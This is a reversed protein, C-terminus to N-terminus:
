GGSGTTAPAPSVGGAPEAGQAAVKKRDFVQDCDMRAKTLDRSHMEAHKSERKSTDSTFRDTIIKVINMIFLCVLNYLLIM